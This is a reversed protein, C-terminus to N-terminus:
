YYHSCKALGQLLQIEVFAARADKGCLANYDLAGRKCRAIHEDVCMYYSYIHVVHKCRSNGDDCIVIGSVARNGRSACETNEGCPDPVCPDGEIRIAVRNPGLRNGLSGFSSRIVAFADDFVVQPFDRKGLSGYRPPLPRIPRHVNQPRRVEARIPIPCGEITNSGPSHDYGSRCRCVATEKSVQSYNDHM